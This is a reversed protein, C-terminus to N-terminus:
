NAIDEIRYGLSQLTSTPDSRRGDNGIITTLPGPGSRGSPADIFEFHTQWRAGAATRMANGTSYVGAAHDVFYGIIEGKRVEQGLSVMLAAAPDDLPTFPDSSLHAAMTYCDNGHDLVIVNGFGNDLGDGNFQAYAVVGDAMAFVAYALPDDYSARTVIDVGSHPNGSARPSGFTGPGSRVFTRSVDTPAVIDNSTLGPPCAAFSNGAVSFIVGALTSVLIIRSSM